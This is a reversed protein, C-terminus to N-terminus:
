RKIEKKKYNELINSVFEHREFLNVLYNQSFSLIDGRSEKIDILENILKPKLKKKLKL